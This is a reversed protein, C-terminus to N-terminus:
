LFSEALMLCLVILFSHIGPDRLRLTTKIKCELVKDKEIGEKNFETNVKESSM